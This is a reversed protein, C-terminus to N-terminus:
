YLAFAICTTAFIIYISLLYTGTHLLNMCKIGAKQFKKSNRNFYKWDTTPQTWPHPSQLYLPHVIDFIGQIQRKERQCHTNSRMANFLPSISLCSSTHFQGPPPSLRSPAPSTVPHPWPGAARFVPSVKIFDVWSLWVGERLRPTRSQPLVPIWLAERTDPPLSDVQLVPDAPSEAEIGPDSLDGPLRPLGGWYEQRSFGM